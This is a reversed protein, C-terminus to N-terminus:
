EYHDYSHDYNIVSPQIHDNKVSRLRAERYIFFYKQRALATEIRIENDVDAIADQTKQAYDWKEKLTNILDLLEEDYEAKVKRKRRGFM